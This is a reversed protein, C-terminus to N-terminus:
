KSPMGGKPLSLDVVVRSCAAASATGAPPLPIRVDSETMYLYPRPPHHGAHVYPLGRKWTVHLLHNYWGAYCWDPGYGAEALRPFRELFRRALGSPSAHEADKWGFYATGDASTHQPRRAADSDVAMAGHDIHVNAAETVGCRWTGLHYIFPIIRLRQYGRVHLEQIMMLVKREPTLM